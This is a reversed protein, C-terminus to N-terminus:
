VFILRAEHQNLDEIKCEFPKDRETLGFHEAMLKPIRVYVSGGNDSVTTSIIM